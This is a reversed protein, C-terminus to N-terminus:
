HYEHAVEVFNPEQEIVLKVAEPKFEPTFTRRTKAMMITRLNLTRWEGAGAM